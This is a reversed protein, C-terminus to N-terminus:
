QQVPLANFRDDEARIRELAQAIADAVRVEEHAADRRMKYEVIGEGAKKGVTIRIPIGLLDADNFKVGPREKRDDLLVEAGANLLSTYIDEAVQAQVANDPKMLTIIVHYPAVAMPWIIGKDDHHQEIVAALTRSVGIGYCGMVVPHEKQEEDKYTAGMAASYKIGLKFVQGVEIGRTHRVPKGCVPCPDGEKLLKLDTVIDAVYDRGYNVGTLHYDEKCAGACMNKAGTLESDLVIRCDHLRTPGTFGAVAGTAPGMASEDAFAIEHEAIGLANVLKIMNLERDGRIFAAVFEKHKGEDDFTEFLLAKITRKKDLGLYAAVEEITKTGPTYVEKQEELPMDAPDPADDRAEAREANAAMGCSECYAIDSEGVESLATFEHSGDGGIAGSDAAVPRCVLGCRKFIRDYADYMVRYSQDLGEEDRDFSYADKMIFERSRMLGFRPRAEDRYKHQIQYLTVPLQRWSSVGDRVIDTFVEEHTPGLCFDRGNRDKIRWLEPGYKTWRGSEEWLEAPQVASMLIEQAGTRDMESRIIEEIKRLSRWGLPMFGYIGSALKRIMGSRILLIHSPIEAEAPVERLTKLYMKSMRM